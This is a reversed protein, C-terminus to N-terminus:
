EGNILKGFDDIVTSGGSSTPPTYSNTGQSQSSSGGGLTFQPVPIKVSNDYNIGNSGSFDYKGIGDIKPMNLGSTAGGLLSALDTGVSSNVKGVAQQMNGLTKQLQDDLLKCVQQKAQNLLNQTIGQVNGQFFGALDPIMNSLNFSQLLNTNICSNPGSFFDPVNVKAADILAIQQQLAADAAAEVGCSAGGSTASFSLNTSAYLASAAIFAVTLSKRLKNM